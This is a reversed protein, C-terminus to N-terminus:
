SILCGLTKEFHWVGDRKRYQWACSGGSMYVIGRNRRSAAWHTSAGAQGSDGEIRWASVDLYVFHGHQDALRRIEERSLILFRVGSSQPLIRPTISSDHRVVVIITPDPLLGYDPVAKEDVVARRLALQMLVDADSQPAEPVTPTLKPLTERISSRCGGLLGILLLSRSVVGM